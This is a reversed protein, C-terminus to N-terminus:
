RYYIAFMQCCSMHRDLLVLSILTPIAVYHFVICGNSSFSSPSSSSLPLSASPSSPLLERHELIWFDGTYILLDSCLSYFLVYIHLYM